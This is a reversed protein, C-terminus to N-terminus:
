SAHVFLTELRDAAEQQLSSIAHSYRDLTISVTSHGLREQVMKPNVGKALLPSAHTYWLSHFTV